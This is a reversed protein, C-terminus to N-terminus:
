GGVSTYKFTYYINNISISIINFVDTYYFHELIDLSIHSWVIDLTAEGGWM